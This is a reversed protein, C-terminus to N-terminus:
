DGGTWAADLKTDTLDPCHALLAQVFRVMRDSAPHSEASAGEVRDSFSSAGPDLGLSPVWCYLVASM